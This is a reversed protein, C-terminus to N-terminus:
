NASFFDSRASLTQNTECKVPLYAVVKVIQGKRGKSLQKYHSMHM